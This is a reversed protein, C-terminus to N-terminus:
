ALTAATLRSLAARPLRRVLARARALPEADGLLGLILLVVVDVGVLVSLLPDVGRRKTCKKTPKM